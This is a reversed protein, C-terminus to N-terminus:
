QISDLCLGHNKKIVRATFKKSSTMDVGAAGAGDTMCQCFKNLQADTFWGPNMRQKDLCGENFDELFQNSRRVPSANFFERLASLDVNDSRNKEYASVDFFNEKLASLSVHPVDFVSLNFHSVDPEAFASLDFHKKERDYYSSLDYPKKKLDSLDLPAVGLISSKIREVLGPLVWQGVLLGGATVWACIVFARGGKDKLYSTFFLYGLGSIAGAIGFALVISGGWYGGFCSIGEFDCVSHVYSHIALVLAVGVIHRWFIISKNM